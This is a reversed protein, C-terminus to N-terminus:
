IQRGKWLPAYFDDGLCDCWAIVQGSDVGPVVFYPEGNSLYRLYGVAVSSHVGQDPYGETQVLVYRREAPMMRMPEPFKIWNM